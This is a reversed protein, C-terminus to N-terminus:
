KKKLKELAKNLKKDSVDVLKFDSKSIVNTELTLAYQVIEEVSKQFYIGWQNMENFDFIDKCFNFNVRLKNSIINSTIDILSDRQNDLDREEGKSEEAISFISDKTLVNDFQGLYNFTIGVNDFVKLVNIIEDNKSLYRLVGFGLGENPIARIQDKVLVVSEEVNVSKKLNLVIPYITTFWGVTRSLDINEFINERGHSELFITLKRKGKWVSYSRIVATLLIEPLKTNFKKNVIEILNKTIDNSFTININESNREQNNDIKKNELSYDYDLALNKWHSFENKLEKSQAYEELKIAWDKFSTTKPPLNIEKALSFSSYVNQFDELLFRWSVADIALHHSVLLLRSENASLKFYAVKFIPGNIIDLSKQIKICNNEIEQIKNDVNEIEFYEFYSDEIQETIKLNSKNTLCLRIRLADHHKLLLEITGKLFEINLEQDIKFLLSQNWHNQNQFASKLFIQQIPIASFEGSVIGQEAIIIENESAISAIERITQYQFLNVPKINIGKQRAKSIIQIGIISDGGLEFFNDTIGFNEKGLVDQWIQYLIIERETEPLVKEKSKNTQVLKKNELKRRDIKGSLTVPIKEILIFSNPIMFDPLKGKIASTLEQYSKEDSLNTTYYCILLDRNNDTIKVVVAEKIFNLSNIINEIETLEVRFGRIKIQHDNRGIYEINDSSLLRVLDGTRYLKSGLENSFPNPIFKQATQYSDNLYHSAVGNGGIYLEGVIGIPVQNLNTDLIYVETNSLNKGIPLENFYEILHDKSSWMTAVVTTETPGYTNLLNIRQGFKNFWKLYIEKSAKEGGIIISHLQEHFNLGKVLMDNTLQQWFATPLDLITIKGKEISKLFIENDSIMEDNRLILKGGVFLIPFIEELCTDFSLSAFQLISDNETLNYDSVACNIFSNLNSRSLVVGKPKGSTGSTYIIYAPYIPDYHNQFTLDQQNFENMFDLNDFEIKQIKDTIRGKNESSCIVYNIRSDELIYELRDKPYKIDLPIFAANIKLISIISIISEIGRDLFVGVFDNRKIGSSILYNAFITSYNDLEYYSLKKENFVIATKDRNIKSLGYLKNVFDQYDNRRENKNFTKGNPQIEYELIGKTPDKIINLLLDEFYELWKELTSKKFLDSNFEFGLVYENEETEQVTLSLDFKSSNSEFGYEEIFLDNIKNFSKEFHNFTFMVQFLPSYSVDRDISVSDLIKEFPLEKHQFAELSSKKIRNLLENFKPNGELTGGIVITNVFLGILNQIDPNERNAIPTGILIRDQNTLRYLLIYYISLFFMFSTINHGRNIEKVSNFIKKNIKRQVIGGNYTQVKPRMFDIPLSLLNPYDNLYNKWFNIKESLVDNSLWDRQWKSYDGYQISLEPLVVDTNSLKSNYFLIIEKIFINSSWGDSIIHHINMVLIFDNENLLICVVRFLPLTNLSFGKQMEDNLYNDAVKVKKDGDLNTLDHFTLNIDFSEHVKQIPKGDINEFTTRLIEHRKIVQNISYTLYGFDFNGKIKVAFPVNYFASNPEIQDLFWLRQQSFSLPFNNRFQLTPIKIFVKNALTFEEIRNAIDFIDVAEFIYKVPFDIKFEKRILGTFQTALLSHGGIEFFNDKLSINDLRLVKKLNNIVKEQHPTLSISIISETIIEKCNQLIKDTDIKGNISLPIENIQFYSSPLMFKPLKEKVYKKIENIEDILILDSLLYANIKHDTASIKDVIVICDKINKYNKITREIEELEIRFGRIKVQNDNRGIFDINGDHAVKVLDGTKFLRTDVNKSFPNPIFKSATTYPDGIYGYSVSDGGIYLEGVVGVPVQNLFNDLVFASYGELPKGIPVESNIKLDSNSNYVWATAIVTTETPGYGNYLSLNRGYKSHWDIFINRELKEGGLIIKNLKKPYTINEDIMQKTLQSFYATPLDLISINEKDLIEIFKDASNLMDENKIVLTLGNILSLFIEEISTDFSNSAFQLFIDDNKIEYLKSAGNLFNSLNKHSIIVGKPIGTSGSTFICYAFNTPSIKSDNNEINKNELIESLLNVSICNIEINNLKERHKDNTFILRIKSIEIFKAIRDQPYNIDIPLFSNGSKLIALITIIYEISNEIFVGIISNFIRLDSKIYQAFQNVSVNLEYYTLNNKNQKLAIKNPYKKASNEFSEIVSEFREYINERYCEALIKKDIESICNFKSIEKAPTELIDNILVVFNEIIKEITSRYFLNENYELIISIENLDNQNVNFTLDYQTSKFDFEVNSIELNDLKLKNDPKNMFSYMVNFLPTSHLNREPQIEEVLLEFPMEQNDFANLSTNRVQNLFSLFSSNPEIKIRLVILNVFFGILNQVNNKNRNAIPTGLSIDNQSSYKYLLVYIAAAFFMFLTSNSEKLIKQIKPFSEASLKKIFQNNRTNTLILNSDYPLNLKTLGNQLNKLWFDKLKKYEATKIWENQWNAYDIYQIGLPPLEIELGNLFKSYIQSLEKIFVNVSWGDSIIHHMVIQLVFENKSLKYLFIKFLPSQALNFYINCNINIDNILTASKTNEDLDSFNYEEIKVNVDNNIVQMPSNSVTFINSRLIEHREVITNICKKLIDVDLKGTLKIAAPINFSTSGPELQDLFWLRKQSFSLPYVNYQQPNLLLRKEFLEKKEQSLKEYNKIFDLM